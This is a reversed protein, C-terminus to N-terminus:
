TVSQLPIAMSAFVGVLAAICCGRAGLIYPMMKADLLARVALEANALSRKTDAYIVDSDGAAVIARRPQHTTM